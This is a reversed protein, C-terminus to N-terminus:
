RERRGAVTADIKRLWSQVDKRAEEARPGEIVLFQGDREAGGRTVFGEVVTCQRCLERVTQFSTGVGYGANTNFPIVTKGQLNYQHLVSRIPPPLQM